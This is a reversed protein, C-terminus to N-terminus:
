REQAMTRFTISYRLEPTPPINHQWGWRAEDRMAYASRPALQLVRVDAGRMSAPPPYARLRMRCWGGLSVGAIVAFEPVDRHWGLPTGPRYESVLAHVFCEAPLALWAAIKQRLPFLFEPLQAAPALENSSFDYQSGYSVTRRRATYQKYRAETLPLAAIESLLAEEEAPTLFDKEYVMGAPLQPESGFFDGQQADRPM